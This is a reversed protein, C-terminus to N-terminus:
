RKKLAKRRTGHQPAVVPGGTFPIRGTIRELAARTRSAQIGVYHRRTTRVDRHGLTNAIDVHDAGADALAQGVSHRLNYPRIAAPWGAHRLVRAMSGTNYPGWAEAAVFENVAALVSPTLYVGGPTYGGKGDRVWWVGRTRDIDDPQARMIESPRRGTEAMLRFRARTKADRLLGAQEAAQLRQYVQAIVAASVAVPPAQRVPLARLRDAPTPAEDGDLAHYLARLATTRNNVTKPAVGDATWGARAELVDDRTILARPRRGYLAAWARLEARRSDLGVLHPVLELYRGIDAALSGQAPPAEVQAALTLALQARQRKLSALDQGEPVRREVPRGHVSVVLAIGSADRYIGTALRRRRGRM